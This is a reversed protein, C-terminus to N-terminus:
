DDIHRGSQLGHSVASKTQAGYNLPTSVLFMVYPNQPGYANMNKGFFKRAKQVIEGPQPKGKVEPRLSRAITLFFLWKLLTVYNCNKSPSGKATRM